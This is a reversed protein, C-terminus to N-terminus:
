NQFLFTEAKHLLFSPGTPKTDVAANRVNSIKFLYAFLFLPIFLINECVAFLFLWCLFYAGFSYLLVNCGHLGQM